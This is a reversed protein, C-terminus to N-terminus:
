PKALNEGIFPARPGTSPAIQVEACAAMLASCAIPKEIIPWGKGTVMDVNGTVYIVPFRGLTATIEEVAEVGTGDIIRFDATILDPRHARACILAQRPSDAFDFTSFGLDMLLTELELAILMEDEIILVHRDM